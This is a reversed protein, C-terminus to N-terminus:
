QLPDTKLINATTQWRKEEETKGVHAGLTQGKNLVKPICLQM